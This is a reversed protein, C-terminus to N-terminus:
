NLYDSYDLIFDQLRKVQKLYKLCSEEIKQIGKYVENLKSKDIKQIM